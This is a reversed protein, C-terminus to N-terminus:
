RSVVITVFDGRGVATGPGPLHGVVQGTPTDSDRVGIIVYSAGTEEITATAQALSIGSLDPLDFVPGSSLGSVTQGEATLATESTTDSIASRQARALSGSSEELGVSYLAVVLLVLLGLAAVPILGGMSWSKPERVKPLPALRPEEVEGVPFMPLLESPNLGLFSAYSRLFGRAYVPAPLISFDEQEMAQLYRRSIRTAREADEFTIKKAARARRLTEGFPSMRAEQLQVSATYSVTM